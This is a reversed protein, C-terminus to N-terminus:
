EHDDTIKFINVNRDLALAINDLDYASSDINNFLLKLKEVEIKLNNLRDINPDSQIPCLTDENNPDSPNLTLIHSEIKELYDKFKELEEYKKSDIINKIELQMNHIEQLLNEYNNQFNYHKLSYVENCKELNKAGNEIGELSKMSQEIDKVLRKSSEKLISSNSRIRGILVSITNITANYANSLIKFEDDHLYNFRASLNGNQTERMVNMLENIPKSYRLSLIYAIFSSIGVVFLITILLLQSLKSTTNFIESINGNSVIYWDWPEYYTYYAIKKKNNFNYIISGKKKQLIEQIWPYKSINQGQLFPHIICDGNSDIIFVYGTEGLTINKIANRVEYEQERRGLVFAGIQKGEKDWLPQYITQHLIGEVNARGTYIQGHILKNYIPGSSITTGVIRTGDSQRVNTSVRVFENNYLYFITAPLNEKEILEDVLTYDLSIKQDGLYWTPLRYGGIDVMNDFDFRSEGLSSLKTTFSAAASELWRTLVLQQTDVMNLIGNNINTITEETQYSIKNFILYYSFGGMLILPIVSIIIFWIFLRYKISLRM